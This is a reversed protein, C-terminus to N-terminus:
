RRWAPAFEDSLDQHTETAGTPQATDQQFDDVVKLAAAADEDAVTVTVLGSAPLEGIGGQLLGGNVFAQIGAQELLDHVLQADLVNEARYVIKM